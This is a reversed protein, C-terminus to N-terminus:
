CSHKLFVFWPATIRWSHRWVKNLFGAPCSATSGMATVRGGGNSFFMIFTGPSSLERHLARPTGYCDDQEIHTSLLRASCGSIAGTRAGVSHNNHKSLVSPHSIHKSTHRQETM